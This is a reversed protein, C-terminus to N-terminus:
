SFKLFYRCYELLQCFLLQSIHELIVRHKLSHNFDLCLLFLSILTDTKYATTFLLSDYKSYM